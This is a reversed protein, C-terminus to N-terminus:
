YAQSRAAAARASRPLLKRFLVIHGAIALVFLVTPLWVYPFYAVWSNVHDPGFAQITPSGAIAVLALILMCLAGFASWAVALWHPAGRWLAFAIPLSTLGTLFDFNYGEISMERPMLGLRAAETMCLELPLRYAHFLVLGWVPVCHALTKGLPSFGLAVGAALTAAFMGMLPPPRLDFRALLGSSALITWLSLWGATLMAARKFHAPAFHRVGSLFGLLTLLAIITIGAAVSNSTDPPM